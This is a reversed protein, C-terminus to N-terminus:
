RFPRSRGHWLRDKASTDGITSPGGSVRSRFSPPLLHFRPFLPGFVERYSAGSTGHSADTDLRSTSASRVSASGSDTGRVFTDGAPPPALNRARASRPLM